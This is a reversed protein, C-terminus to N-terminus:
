RGSITVWSFLLWFLLLSSFYGLTNSSTAIFCLKFIITFFLLGKKKEKKFIKHVLHLILLCSFSLLLVNGDLGVSLGYRTASTLSVHTEIWDLSVAFPPWSQCHPLHPTLFPSLQWTSTTFLFTLKSTAPLLM